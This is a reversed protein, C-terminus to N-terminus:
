DAVHVLGVFMNANCPRCVVLIYQVCLSGLLRIFLCAVIPGSYTKMPGGTLRWKSHRKAPSGITTRSHLFMSAQILCFQSM